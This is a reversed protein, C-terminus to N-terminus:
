PVEQHFPRPSDPTPQSSDPRLPIDIIVRAGGLDPTADVYARGGHAEAIAAVIALGLGSGDTRSGAAGRTFREFMREADASPIGPGQDQVSLLLRDGVIASAVTIRTDPESFKVANAVLQLWGQTIRQADIIVMQEARGDVRWDRAGLPRSKDLLEDTLQGINTPSLRVFDPRELSALLMLEDTLRHMRDLEDIALEQTNRVDVPDEPDMLELHGRVITLPTRLEHSADDLLQRQSTFATQLRDLMSNFTRTLDSVDDNGSVAIRQNLDSESTSEATERLDRLPALLRGGLWWGVVGLGILTGLGMVGLTRYTRVLEGHEATRNFGYVLVGPAPDDDVRVPITVIRFSAGPTEITRLRVDPEDAAAVAVDVIQDVEDLRVPVGTPAVLGVEGDLIAFMGENPAPVTRQLATYVISRADTFGEGTRPDVGDAVLTRFEEVNRALTADVLEDIREYQLLFATGGAVLMGIAALAILAALFRARVTLRRPTGQGAGPRWTM